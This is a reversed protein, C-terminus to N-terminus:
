KPHSVLYRHLFLPEENLCATHITEISLSISYGWLQSTGSGTPLASVTRPYIASVGRYQHPHLNPIFGRSDPDAHPVAEQLPWLKPNVSQPSLYSSVIECDRMV